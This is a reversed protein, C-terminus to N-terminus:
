RSLLLVSALLWFDVEMNMCVMSIMHFIWYPFVNMLRQQMWFIMSWELHTWTKAPTKFKWRIWHLTICIWLELRVIFSWVYDYHRTVCHQWANLLWSKSQIHDMLTFKRKCSLLINWINYHIYRWPILIVTLWQDHGFM